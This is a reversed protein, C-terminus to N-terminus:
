APSDGLEAQVKLKTRIFEAHPVYLLDAVKRVLHDEYRDLRADAFAIRWLHEIVRSKDAPELEANLLRAFEHLSVATDARRAADALLANAEAANLGFQRAVLEAVRRREDATEDADARSMEVLLAATALRLAHDRTEAAAPGADLEDLVLERLRKLM